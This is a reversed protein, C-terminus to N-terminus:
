IKVYIKTWMYKIKELTSVYDAAASIEIERNSIFRHGRTTRGAKIGAYEVALVENNYLALLWHIPRIFQVDLDGWRMAIPLHTSQLVQVYLEALVEKASRGKEFVRAYLYDKGGINKQQVTKTDIGNKKCFGIGAPSLQGDKFAIEAPPGKVERDVDAQQETLGNIIVAVRRDTGVAKLATYTLRQAKLGDGIKTSVENLLKTMFRAPVEELGIEFLIDAM